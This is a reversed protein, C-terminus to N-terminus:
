AANPFRIKIIAGRGPNFRPNRIFAEAGSLAALSGVIVLGNGNMGEGIRGNAIAELRKETIARLPIEPEDTKLDIKRLYNEIGRGNDIVELTTADNTKRADVTIEGAFEGDERRISVFENRSNHLLNEVMRFLIDEHSVVKFGAGVTTTAIDTSGTIEGVVNFASVTEAVSMKLGVARPTYRLEQLTSRVIRQQARAILALDTRSPTLNFTEIFGRAITFHNLDHMLRTSHGPPFRGSRDMSQGMFMFFNHSLAGENTPEAGFITKDMVAVYTRIQKRLTTVANIQKDTPNRKLIESM